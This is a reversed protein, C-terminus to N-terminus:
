GFSDCKKLTLYSHSLVAINLFPPLCYYGTIIDANNMFVNPYNNNITELVISSIIVALLVILLVKAQKDLTSDITKHMVNNIKRSLLWFKCVFISHLLENASFSITSLYYPINSPAYNNAQYIIAWEAIYTTYCIQLLVFMTLHFSKHDLKRIRAVFYYINVLSLLSYTIFVICAKVLISDM